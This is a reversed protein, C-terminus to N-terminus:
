RKVVWATDCDANSCDWIDYINGNKVCTLHGEIRVLYTGVPYKKCFQEVTLGRCPVTPYDLENEILYRYCQLSLPSCENVNASRHLKRKVLRYPLGTALTIARTVCDEIHRDSPNVNYYIFM